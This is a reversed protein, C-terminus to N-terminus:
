ALNNPSHWLTTAVIVSVTLKRLSCSTPSLFAGCGSRRLDLPEVGCLTGLILDPIGTWNVVVADRWAVQFLLATPQPVCLVACVFCCPYHQNRSSWSVQRSDAPSSLSILRHSPSWFRLSAPSERSGVCPAPSWAATVLNPQCSRGPLTFSYAPPCVVCCVCLLLSLAPEQFFFIVFQVQHVPERVGTM